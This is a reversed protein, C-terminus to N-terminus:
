QWLSNNISVISTIIIIGKIQEKLFLFSGVAMYGDKPYEGGRFSFLCMHHHKWWSGLPVITTRRETQYVRCIKINETPYGGETGM